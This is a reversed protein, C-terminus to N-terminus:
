SDKREAKKEALHKRIVAELRQNELEIEQYTNQLDNYNNALQMLRRTVTPKDEQSSQSLLTRVDLFQDGAGNEPRTRFLDDHVAQLQELQGKTEDYKKQLTDRENTTTELQQKLGEKEKGLDEVQKTVAAGNPLMDPPLMRFAPTPFTVSVLYSCAAGWQPALLYYSVFLLLALSCIAFLTKRGCGKKSSPSSIPPYLTRTPTALPKKKSKSTSRNPSPAKPSTARPSTRTPSM